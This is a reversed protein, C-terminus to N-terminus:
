LPLEHVVWPECASYAAWIYPSHESIASCLGMIRRLPFLKPPLPEQSKVGSDLAHPPLCPFLQCAAELLFDVTPNSM